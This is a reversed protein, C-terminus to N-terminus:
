CPKGRWLHALAASTHEGGGEKIRGSPETWITILLLELDTQSAMSYITVSPPSWDSRSHESDLRCEKNNLYPYHSILALFPEGTYYSRTSDQRVATKNLTLCQSTLYPTLIITVNRGNLHHWISSLFSDRSFVTQM